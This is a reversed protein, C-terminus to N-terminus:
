EHKAESEKLAAAFARATILTTAIRCISLSKQFRKSRLIATVREEATKSKPASQLGDIILEQRWTSVGAYDLTAEIQELTFSAPRNALVTNIIDHM